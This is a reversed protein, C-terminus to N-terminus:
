LEPELEPYYKKSTVPVMTIKVPKGDAGMTGHDKGDLPLLTIPLLFRRKWFDAIQKRSSQIKIQGTNYPIPKDSTRVDKEGFEYISRDDPQQLGIATWDFLNKSDTAKLILGPLGCLKWPGMSYPIETSFWVIWERGRFNTRACNCNYGLIEREGPIVEWQFLPLSEEYQYEDSAFRQSVLMTNGGITSTVDYFWGDKLYREDESLWRVCNNWDVKGLRNTPVWDNQYMEFFISDQKEAYTSYYRTKKEGIELVTRDHRITGREDATFSFDYTVALRCDDVPVKRCINRPMPFYVNTIIQANALITFFSLLLTSVMTNTFRIFRM